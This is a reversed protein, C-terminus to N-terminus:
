GSQQWLTVTTGSGAFEIISDIGTWIQRKSHNAASDAKRHSPPQPKAPPFRTFFGIEQEVDIV